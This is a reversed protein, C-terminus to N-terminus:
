LEALGVYDSASMGHRLKWTLSLNAMWECSGAPFSHNEARSFLKSVVRFLMDRASQLRSTIVFM